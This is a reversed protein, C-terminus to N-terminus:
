RVGESMDLSCGKYAGSFMRHVITSPWEHLDEIYPGNVGGWEDIAVEVGYMRSLLECAERKREVSITRHTQVYKAQPIDDRTNTYEYLDQMGDFSGYQYKRVVANVQDVQPGDTWAVDVADGMSFNRSRVGFTTAPFAAKLEQRIMKAAQAAETLTRAAM